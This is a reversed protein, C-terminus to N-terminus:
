YVPMQGAHAGPTYVISAAIYFYTYDDFEQCPVEKNHATCYKIVAKNGLWTCGLAAVTAVSGVALGLSRGFADVFPGITFGGVFETLGFFPLILGVATAHMQRPFWSSWMTMAVGTFTFIPALCLMRPKGVCKITAMIQEPVSRTDVAAASAASAADVPAPARVLLLVLWGAAAFVTLGIFLYMEDEASPGSGGLGALLGSSPQAQPGFTDDARRPAATSTANSDSSGGSLLFHGILPGPIVSLNFMGWFMSNYKTKNQETTSATMM